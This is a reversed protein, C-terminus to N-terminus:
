LKELMAEVLRVAHRIAAAEFTKYDVAVSDDAKDSIARVILFPVQNLYAAQAIAAGEMETCDGQFTERLWKKKEGGGIFQDGSVIRGSFTRIDPNAQQCCELGIQLLREDAKFAKTDMQPIQGLEYGFSLADVDHQVADVSLVIDGINIEENLSGAIGTNLIGEVHYHDVLIQSCVAANVKGVGSRVVVVDKGKIKGERFKMGAVTKVTVEPMMGCLQEIENEMAGIIGLM